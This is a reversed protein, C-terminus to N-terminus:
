QQHYKKLEESFVNFINHSKFYIKILYRDRYWVGPTELLSPRIDPKWPEIPEIQVIHYKDFIEQLYESLEEYRNLSDMYDYKKIHKM